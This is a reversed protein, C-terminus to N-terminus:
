CESQYYVVHRSLTVRLLGDQLPHLRGGGTDTRPHAAHGRLLGQRLLPRQVSADRCLADEAGKVDTVCISM